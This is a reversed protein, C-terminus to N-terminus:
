EDTTGSRVLEGHHCRTVHGAGNLPTLAPESQVCVETAWTCRPRFPCGRPLRLLNPPAGPIPLLRGGQKENLKPISSLLGKTYPNGSEYFIEDTVGAEFITGAYMVNIRDAIGAVVGLDHTILIMAAETIEHAAKIVELVQAQITVDLATTPEDAILLKPDNAMAMAIMARQRMGGSYEHPYLRARHAADPIGVAELLKIARQWAVDQSVDRHLIIAEVLQNGVRHVPNLATMPDQFIMAIDDGRIRRLEELPADILERGLFRASGTITATRPLLGLIAMATVSKGSGSEGVIALVEKPKIDFSVGRVANVPGDESRFTM